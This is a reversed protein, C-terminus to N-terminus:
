AKSWDDALLDTQSATWTVIAGEVTYMVIYPRVSIAPVGNRQAWERIAPAWFREAPNNTVGPSLALWMGRGNWGQRTVRGGNKLIRLAAGFGFQQQEIEPSDSETM